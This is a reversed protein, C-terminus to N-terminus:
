YSFTVCLPFFRAKAALLESELFYFVWDDSTAKPDLKLLRHAFRLQFGITSDPRSRAHRWKGSVAHKQNQKHVLTSVLVDGKGGSFFVQRVADIGM